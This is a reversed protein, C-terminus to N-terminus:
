PQDDGTPESKRAARARLELERFFEQQEHPDETEDLARLAVNIFERRDVGSAPVVHGALRSLLNFDVDYLDALDWLLGESPQEIKGTEVQSLHANSVGTHEEVERLTWGKGQRLKKLLKGLEGM